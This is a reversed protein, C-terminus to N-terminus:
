YMIIKYSNFHPRNSRGPGSKSSQSITAFDHLVRQLAAQPRTINNFRYEYMEELPELRSPSKTKQVTTATTSRPM